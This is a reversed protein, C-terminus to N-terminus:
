DDHTLEQWFAAVIMYTTALLFGHINGMAAMTGAAVLAAIMMCDYFKM